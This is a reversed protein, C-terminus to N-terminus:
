SRQIETVVWSSGHRRVTVVLVVRAEAPYEEVVGGKQDVLQQKPSSGVILVQSVGGEPRPAEASKIQLPPHRLHHQKSRLEMLTQKYRQCTDCSAEFLKDISAQQPSVYAANVQSIFFRAFAAAGGYGPAKAAAPIVAEPVVPTPSATPTAVTPLSQPQPEPSATCSVLLGAGLLLPLVFPLRVHSPYSAVRSRSLPQPYARRQPLM